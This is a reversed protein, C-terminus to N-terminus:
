FRGIRPQGCQVKDPAGETLVKRGAGGQCISGARDEEPGMVAQTEIGSALNM